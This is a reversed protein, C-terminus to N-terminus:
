KLLIMPKTDKFTLTELTYFYVGGSLDMEKSNFQIENYGEDAIGQYLVIIKKGLADYITLEAYQSYPLTFCIFTSEDFPNPKNPLLSYNLYSKNEVVPTYVSVFYTLASDSNKINCNNWAKCQYMGTNRGPNYVKLISSTENALPKLDKYWQYYIPKTGFAIVELVMVDGTITDICVTHPPMDNFIAKEEVWINAKESYIKIGSPMLVIEAQYEGSDNYSVPNLTIKSSYTLNSINANQLEIGNKYWKFLPENGPPINKLVVPIDFSDGLCLGNSQPQESIIDIVKITFNDSQDSGCENIAKVFYEGSHSEVDFGWIKLTSTQSGAIKGNEDNILNGNIYWQYYCSDCNEANTSLEINSGPSVYRTEPTEVIVPKLKVKVNILNSTINERGCYSSGVVCKYYGEDDKTINKIVIKGETYQEIPFNNKSWTYQLGDGFAEIRLELDDGECVATDKIQSIIEPSRYVYVPIYDSTDKFGCVSDTVICRYLGSNRHTLQSNRYEKDFANEIDKNDIQWQYYVGDSVSKPKLILTNGRCILVSDTNVVVSPYERLKVTVEKSMSVTKCKDSVVNCYYKGTDSLTINHKVLDKAIEDTDIMVSDKYWEFLLDDGSAEIHIALTGGLCVSQNEPQVTIAPPVAMDIRINGSVTTDGCKSNILLCRYDGTKNSDIDTLLYESSNPSDVNHGDKQWQYNIYSGTAKVFLNYENQNCLIVSEQISDIIIDQVKSLEIDESFVICSYLSTDMVRCSYKGANLMNFDHVILQNENSNAIPEDNKYWQFVANQYNTKVFLTTDEGLCVEVDDSQELVVPEQNVYVNVIGSRTIGTEKDTVNLTLSINTDAVVLLPKESNSNLLSEKPYWDYDYEGSGGYAAMVPLMDGNCYILDSPSIEINVASKCTYLDYSRVRLDPSIDIFNEYYVIGGDMYEVITKVNFRGPSCFAHYVEQGEYVLSDGEFMWKWNKVEPVEGDLNMTVEKNDGQKKQIMGAEEGILGRFVIDEFQYLTIELPNAKNKQLFGVYHNIQEIRNGLEDYKFVQTSGNDYAVRVLRNLEDYNYQVTPTKSLCLTGSLLLPSIILYLILKITKM